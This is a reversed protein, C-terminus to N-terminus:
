KLLILYVVFQNIKQKRIHSYKQSLCKQPQNSDTWYFTPMKLNILHRQNMRLNETCMQRAHTDTKIMNFDIRTRTERCLDWNLNMLVPMDCCPCILQHNLSMAHYKFPLTCSARTVRNMYVHRSCLLIDWGNFWKCM